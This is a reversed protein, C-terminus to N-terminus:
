ANLFIKKISKIRKEQSLSEFGYKEFVRIFKDLSFSDKESVDFIPIGPFPLVVLASNNELIKIGEESEIRQKIKGEKM